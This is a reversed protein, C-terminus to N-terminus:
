FKKQSDFVNNFEFLKLYVSCIPKSQLKTSMPFNKKEEQKSRKKKFCQFSIVLDSKLDFDSQSFAEKLILLSLSNITFAPLPYKRVGFFNREVRLHFCTFRFCVCVCQSM